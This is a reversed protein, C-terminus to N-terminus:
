AHSVGDTVSEAGLGDSSGLSKDSKYLGSIIGAIREAGRGDILRGANRSMVKLQGRNRIFYGTIGRIGEETVDRHYGLSRCIGISELAEIDLADEPYNAILVSPVGMYALEYVTVGMASFALDARAAHPALDKVGSLFTFSGSRSNIIRRFGPSPTSAPGIVVTVQLGDVEKLALTLREALGNPDSGGMTVLVKLAEGPVPRDDVGQRLVKGIARARLFDEGIIVYDGGSKINSSFGGPLEEGMEAWVDPKFTLTPMVVYDSAGCATLNDVVVVWKGQLKLGAALKSIDKRTDMVIVGGTVVSDTPGDLPSLAFKMSEDILLTKLSNDENILFSVPVGSAKLVRAVALSRMVHGMGISSGGETWFTVGDPM